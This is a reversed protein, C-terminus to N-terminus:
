DEILNIGIWDIELFFSGEQKESILFGLQRINELNLNPALPIKRGRFVAQFDSAKFTFTEWKDKTTAFIARYAIGDFRNNSRLRLQYTKGDGKVRIALNQISETGLSQISTRTSAFGGNNELSVTGTFIGKGERVQMTSKSLGGMVGDNVIQWEASTETDFNKIIKMGPINQANGITAILLLLIGTFFNFYQKDITNM